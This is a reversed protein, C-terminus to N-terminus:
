KNVPTQAQKTERQPCQLGCQPGPAVNLGHTTCICLGGRGFLGLRIMRPNYHPGYNGLYIGHQMSYFKFTNIVMMFRDYIFHTNRSSEWLGKCLQAEKQLTVAGQQDNSLICIQCKWAENVETNFFAVKWISGKTYIFYLWKPYVKFFFCKRLESEKERHLATWDSWDIGHGMIYLADWCGTAQISRPVDGDCVVSGVCCSQGSQLFICGHRSRRVSTVGAVRHWLGEWGCGELQGDMVDVLCVSEPAWIGGTVSSCRLM